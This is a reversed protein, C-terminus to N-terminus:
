ALPDGGEPSVTNERSASQPNDETEAEVRPGSPEPDGRDEQDVMKVDTVEEGPHPQDEHAEEELMRCEEILNEFKSISKEMANLPTQLVTVRPEMETHAPGERTVELAKSMADLEDHLKTRRSLCKRLSSSM